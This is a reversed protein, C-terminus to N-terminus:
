GQTAELKCLNGVVEQQVRGRPVGVDDVRHRLCEALWEAAAKDDLAPVVADDIGYTALASYFM